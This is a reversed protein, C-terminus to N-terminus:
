GTLELAGEEPVLEPVLVDGNADIRPDSEPSSSMM